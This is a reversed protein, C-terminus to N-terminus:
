GAAEEAIEDEDTEPEFTITDVAMETINDYVVIFIGDQETKYEIGNIIISSNDSPDDSGASKVAYKDGSIELPAKSYAREEERIEGGCVAAAYSDHSSLQALESLGMDSLFERVYDTLATSADGQATMYIDIDEDDWFSKLYTILGDKDVMERRALKATKENECERNYLYMIRDTGTLSSAPTGEDILTEWHYEDFAAPREPAVCTDFNDYRFDEQLKNDYVVINLGRQNGSYERDEIMISSTNAMNYGGSTITYATGDRLTGTYSIFDDTANKEGPDIQYKETIVNGHDIVALYSSRNTLQSLETLGISAFYERQEETLSSAADDKVSIFITFGDNNLATDIYNCPDTETLLSQQLSIYQQYEDLEEDMFAYREDGRVDHNGCEEILYCGIYDTLKMAGYYNAHINSNLAEADISDAALNYGIESYYPEVNFDIFDLGYTNALEQVSNHDSSSWETPTKILVLKLNHAECFSDIKELYVIETEDLESGQEFGDPILLPMHLESLSDANSIEQQASYTYGRLFLDPMHEFRLFDTSSLEKWREHYSFLPILNQLFDEFNESYEKAAQIKNSSFHMPDIAKHYSATTGEKRLMSVDFMVTDMTDSHLQYLEKLWYYSSSASQEGTSLDYACIGYDEYLKM